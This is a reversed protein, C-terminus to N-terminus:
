YAFIKNKPKKSYQRSRLVYFGSLIKLKEKMEEASIARALSFQELRLSAYMCVVCMLVFTTSLMAEKFSMWEAPPIKTYLPFTILIELSGPRPISAFYLAKSRYCWCQKLLIVLSQLWLSSQRTLLSLSLLAKDNPTPNSYLGFVTASSTLVSERRLETISTFSLDYHARSFWIRPALSLFVNVLLYLLQLDLQEQEATGSRHWIILKHM